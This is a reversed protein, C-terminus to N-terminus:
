NQSKIVINKVKSVEDRGTVRSTKNMNKVKM